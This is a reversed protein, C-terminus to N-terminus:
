SAQITNAYIRLCDLCDQSVSGVLLTRLDLSNIPTLKLDREIILKIALGGTGLQIFQDSQHVHLIAAGVVGTTDVGSENFPSLEYLTPRVPVALLVYAVRQSGHAGFLNCLQVSLVLPSVSLFLVAVLDQHVIWM